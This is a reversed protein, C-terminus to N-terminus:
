CIIGKIILFLETLIYILWNILYLFWIYFLKILYLISSFFMKSKVKLFKGFIKAVSILLDILCKWCNGFWLVFLKFLNLIKNFLYNICNLLSICFSEVFLLISSLIIKSGVKLYHKLNKANTLIIDMMNELCIGFWLGFLGGIYTFYDLLLM